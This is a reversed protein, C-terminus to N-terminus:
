VADSFERGHGQALMLLESMAASALSRSSDVLRCCLTWLRLSQSARKPSHELWARPGCANPGKCGTLRHCGPARSAPLDHRAPIGQAMCPLLTMCPACHGQPGSM